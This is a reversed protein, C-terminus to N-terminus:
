RALERLMIELGKTIRALSVYDVTDPLDYTRHYYPNRFPATDTIMLAPAGIQRYSWHDSFDVGEISSPVVGGITPFTTQRRFSAIAKRLFARSGPLGVFAAFNGRDEYLLNFPMPFRQSGPEDSFHGLTELSIAGTIREGRDKLRRAHRYSGMNKTKGFPHEENVWLVLRLRTRRPVHDRLLRALELTAAVGTGNDNAGPSIGASDYHAGVIVSPPEPEANPPEIVAEINRVPKGGQEFTQARPTYGFGTLTTEIYRAAAELGAFHEMNRPRSAIAAIHTRLRPVLQTEGATMPPLPGDVPQLPFVIAYKLAAILFLGTVTVVAIAAVISKRRGSPASPRDGQHLSNKTPQMRAGNV